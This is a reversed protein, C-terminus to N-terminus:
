VYIELSAITGVREAAKALRTGPDLREAQVVLYIRSPEVLKVEL